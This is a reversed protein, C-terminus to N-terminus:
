LYKYLLTIISSIIIIIPLNIIFFRTLNIHHIIYYTYINQQHTMGRRYLIYHDHKETKYITNRCLPCRNIKNLMMKNFCMNHIKHKCLEIIYIDKVMEELCICCENEIM